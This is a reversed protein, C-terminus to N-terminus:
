QELLIKKRLKKHYSIAFRHSEDRIQLILNSIKQNVNRLFISEKKGEIYLKNEKKALAIVKIFQNKTDKQLAKLAAGLQPKGGDVLIVDPKQWESHNLRRSIIEKIMAPDNPEGKKVTKDKYKIKFKRYLSKVPKGEIFVVMSGVAQKGQINSIDYGEIRKINKKTELLKKVNEQIREWCLFIDKNRASIPVFPHLFFIQSHAMIKELALIQDRILKAKEFDQNDSAKKMEKKLKSIVQPKKGKLINILNKINKRYNRKRNLLSKKNKISTICPAPCREIQYLLCPRKPLKESRARCTRYPFVKQPTKLVTKLARGDVFPGIYQINGNRPKLQHTVFIRPFLEKTAAAYFYNKDDRWAVNYKPEYKKILNAELILAEIESATKIFSIKSSKEVFTNNGTGSQRFHNKVRERINSAKGIYLFARGKKFAYVGPTKPLKSIKEKELVKFNKM